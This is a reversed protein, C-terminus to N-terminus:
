IEYKFYKSLGSLGLIESVEATIGEIKFDIKHKQLSKFFAILLQIGSTDVETVGSLDITVEKNDKVKELKALLAEKVQQANDFILNGEVIVNNKSGGIKM